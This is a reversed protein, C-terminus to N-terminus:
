SEQGAVVPVNWSFAFMVLRQILEACQLLRMLLLELSFLSISGGV